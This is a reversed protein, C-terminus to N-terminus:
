RYLYVPSKYGYTPNKWRVLAEAGILEKSPLAFLPQFYLELEKEIETQKLLAEIENQHTIAECTLENYFHYKNYGQSKAM